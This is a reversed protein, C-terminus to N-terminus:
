WVMRAIASSAPKNQHFGNLAEYRFAAFLWNNMWFSLPGMLGGFSVSLQLVVSGAPSAIFSGCTALGLCWCLEPSWFCVGWCRRRPKEWTSHGARHLPYSARYSFLRNGGRKQHLQKSRKISFLGRPKSGAAFYFGTFGPFRCSMQQAHKSGQRWGTGTWSFGPLVWGSM